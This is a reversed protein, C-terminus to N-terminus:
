FTIEVGAIVTRPLGPRLGAPRRAAVYIEDALNRVQFFIRYREMLRYDTSLDVVWRSEILQEEPIRGSGSHTRVDSTYNADVFASWVGSELGVGLLVQDKPIYPIEDGKEVEPAWDAFSTEFSTLFESQTRTYVLRLPLLLKDGARLSHGVSAELGWIRAAGGNFQDGTGEGGSSLTDTGLLNDYDNFFGTVEAATGGSNLRYGLEYNIAREAEVEEPSGAAPPAFGKHVGAFIVSTASARLTAGLGPILEDVTNRRVSLDTGSRDPDNKGFDRRALDISEYRLGPTLTWSGLDITDVVFLAWADASSIRNSQSGPAGDATLIMRGDIMQYGDEEQFRDEEDRHYRLGIEFDHSGGEAVGVVAQVGRGYYNRRNARVSLEGPDSDIEGRVIAMERQHDNTADLVAVISSGAVSQLKYWNRFFDNNYAVATVDVSPSLQAFYSVQVQEHDSDFFDAESGAYRRYPTRGFDGSTLGLYTENDFQETKSLKVEIAQFIDAESGTTYRFKGLYDDLQFGTDGGTDLDKFGDSELRFGEVLWGFREGSNGVDFNTRLYGDRGGALHVRGGLRGPISRSLYNLSGGTTFPGQRIAGAGKLVEFGEMRGATPSYYASPASYPAPAILVGDEMLTIKQSREVGTGRIGINPRLGWGEEEQINIGPVQRLIRHVDSNNRKELEQKGIRQASGPLEFRRDDDGVVLLREQISFSPGALEAAETQAEDATGEKEAVGDAPQEASAGLGAGWLLSFALAVTWRRDTM